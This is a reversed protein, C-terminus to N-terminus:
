KKTGSNERERQERGNKIYSFDVDYGAIKLEVARVNSALREIQTQMDNVRQLVTGGYFAGTILTLGSIGNIFLWRRVKDQRREGDESM